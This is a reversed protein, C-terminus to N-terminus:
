QNMKDLTQTIQREFDGLQGCLSNLDADTQQFAETVQKRFKMLKRRLQGAWRAADPAGSEADLEQEVTTGVAQLPEFWAGSSAGSLALRRKGLLRWENRIRKPEPMEDDDFPALQDDMAQLADHNRVLGKLTQQLQVFSKLGGAFAELREAAEGAFNAANLTELIHQLPAMVRGFNLRGAEEGLRRNLDAPERGLVRQILQLADKVGELSQSNAAADLDKVGMGLEDIWPRPDDRFTELAKRIVARLQICLDEAVNTFAAWCKERAAEDADEADAACVKFLEKKREQLNRNCLLAMHFVDHLGKYAALLRMGPRAGEDFEEKFRALQERVDATTLFHRLSEIGRSASRTATQLVAERSLGLQELLKAMMQGREELKRFDAYTRLQISDPLPVDEFLLPILRRNSGDPDRLQALQVEFSSWGSKSYNETVVALTHRTNKVADEMSRIAVGGFQFDESDILVRLQAALLPRLVEGLVLNKDNHSYSIFVDHTYEPSGEPTTM